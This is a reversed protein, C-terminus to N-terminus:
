KMLLFASTVAGKTDSIGTPSNAAISLTPLQRPVAFAIGNGRFFFRQFEPNRRRGFFLNLHMPCCASCNPCDEGLVQLLRNGVGILLLM